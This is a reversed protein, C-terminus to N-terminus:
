DNQKEQKLQYLAPNQKKDEQILWTFAGVLNSKEQYNDFIQRVLPSVQNPQEQNNEPELFAHSLTM